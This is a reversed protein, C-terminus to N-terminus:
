IKNKNLNIILKRDTLSAGNKDDYNSIIFM